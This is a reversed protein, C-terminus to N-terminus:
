TSHPPTDGSARLNEEAVASCEHHLRQVERAPMTVGSSPVVVWNGPAGLAVFACAFPPARMAGLVVRCPTRLEGVTLLAAEADGGMMPALVQGVTEKFHQAMLAVEDFTWPSENTIKRYGHQTSFELVQAVLSSHQRKPVGHRKLLLRICEAAKEGYAGPKVSKRTM